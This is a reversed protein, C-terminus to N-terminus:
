PQIDPRADKRLRVVAFVVVILGALTLYPAVVELKSRPAVVGGVPAPPAPQLAFDLGAPEEGVDVYFTEM